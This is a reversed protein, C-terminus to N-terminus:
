AGGSFAHKRASLWMLLLLLAWQTAASGQAIQLGKAEVVLDGALGHKILEPKCVVSGTHMMAVGDGMGM